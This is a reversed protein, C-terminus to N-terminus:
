HTIGLNRTMGLNDMLTDVKYHATSTDDLNIYYGNSKAFHDRMAARYDKNIYSSFAIGYGRCESTIVPSTERWRFAIRRQMSPHALPFCLKKLDLADRYGKLEVGVYRGSSNWKVGSGVFLRVRFGLRELTSVLALVAVGSKTMEDTSVSSTAGVDYHITLTKAKVPERYVRRMSDPLGLLARPVVPACGVVNNQMRARSVSEVRKVQAALRHGERLAELPDSWGDALLATAETYSETGAWSSNGSRVASDNSRGHHNTARADTVRNFEAISDFTEGIIHQGDITFDLTQM